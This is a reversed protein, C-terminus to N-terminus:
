KPKDVHLRVLLFPHSNQRAHKLLQTAGAAVENGTGVSMQYRCHCRYRDRGGDCGAAIPPLPTFNQSKPRKIKTILVDLM